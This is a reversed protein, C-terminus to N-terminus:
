PSCDLSRGFLSIFDEHTLCVYGDFAKANCSLKEDDRRSIGADFSSGQWIKVPQPLPRDTKALTTCAPLNLAVSILLIRWM